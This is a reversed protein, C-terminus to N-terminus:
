SLLLCGGGEARLYRGQRGELTRFRSKLGDEKIGGYYICPQDEGDKCSIQDRRRGVTKM